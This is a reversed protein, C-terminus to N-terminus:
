IDGIEAFDFQRGRIKLDELARIKARHQVFEGKRVVQAIGVGCTLKQAHAFQLARLVDDLEIDQLRLLDGRRLLAEVTRREAVHRSQEAGVAARQAARAGAGNAARRDPGHVRIFRGADPEDAHAVLDDVGFRGLLDPVSIGFFFHFYARRRLRHQTDRLRLLATDPQIRHYLPEHLFGDPF